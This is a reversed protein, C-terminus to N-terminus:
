GHAEADWVCQWIVLRVFLALSLCRLLDFLNHPWRVRCIYLLARTRCGCLGRSRLLCCGCLMMCWCLWCRWRLRLILLDVWFVLRSGLLLHLLGLDLRLHLWLHLLRLHLRLHLLLHDGLGYHIVVSHRNPRILLLGHVDM